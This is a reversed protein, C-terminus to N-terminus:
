KDVKVVKLIKRGSKDKGYSFYNQNIMMSILQQSKNFGLNNKKCYHILETQSPLNTTELVYKDYMKIINNIMTHQNFNKNNSVNEVILQNLLVNVYAHFTPITNNIDQQIIEAGERMCCNIGSIKVIMEIITQSFSKLLELRSGTIGNIKNFFSNNFEELRNIADDSFAIIREQNNIKSVINSYHKAIKKFDITTADKRYLQIIKHRLHKVKDLSYEERYTPTRQFFGQSLLLKSVEEIYYTTCFISTTSEYSIPFDSYKMSKNIIGPYDQAEQFTSLIFETDKENRGKILKKAEPVIIIDTDKLLGYIVPDRWKSSSETLRAKTNAEIINYDISGILASQELYSLRKITLGINQGVEEVVKILQGKGMRSGLILFLHTRLDKLEGGFKIKVKKFYQSLILYFLMEIHFNLQYHPVMKGNGIDLYKKNPDIYISEVVKLFETKLMGYISSPQLM